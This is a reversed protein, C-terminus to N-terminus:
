SIKVKRLAELVIEKEKEIIADSIESTNFTADKILEEVGVKKLAGSGILASLVYLTLESRILLHHSKGITNTVAKVAEKKWQELEDNKKELNIIRKELNAILLDSVM